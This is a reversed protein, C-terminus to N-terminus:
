IDKTPITIEAIGDSADTDAPDHTRWTGDTVTVSLPSSPAGPNRFEATIDNGGLHGMAKSVLYVALPTNTANPNANPNTTGAMMAMAPRQYGGTKNPLDVAEMIEPFEATPADMRAYSETPDMYKTVFDKQFDAVRAPLSKGTWEV